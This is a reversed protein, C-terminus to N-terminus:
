KLHSKVVSSAEVIDIIKLYQEGIIIGRLLGLMAEAQSVAALSLAQEDGKLACQLSMQLGSFLITAAGGVLRGQETFEVGRGRQRTSLLRVGLVDELRTIRQSFAQRTMGIARAAGALSGHRIVLTLAYIDNLNLARLDDLMNM